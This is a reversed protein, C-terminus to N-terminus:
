LDRSPDAANRVTAFQGGATADPPDDNACGILSDMLGDQHLLTLCSDVAAPHYIRGRGRTLEAAVEERPLGPRYPRHAMMSEAVDAVAIVRAGILIADGGLGRPYGSGDLREHHQRVMEAVPWPFDIGKLIQYGVESHTRIIEMELESLRGPKTLIEIPVKIKGIDHLSAALAIGAIERESFGMARAMITALRAVNRQHGATYPDRFELTSALAQVVDNLSRQLRGDLQDREARLRLAAVGYSLDRAVEELLAMEEADFADVDAAVLGIAGFTGDRGTLPFAASSGCGREVWDDRWLAVEPNNTFDRNVHPTGTRIARSVPTTGRETAAWVLNLRELLDRHEGYSAVPRITRAADHEAFGIWALVYGGAEVLAKCMEDLLASENSAHVLASNAESLARLARNTRQLKREAIVRETIDILTGRYAQVTGATDRVPMMRDHIWYVSGDRAIGRYDQEFVETKGSKLDELASVAAPRDEPHIFEPFRRAGAMVEEVTYGFRTVNSSIYSRALGGYAQTQYLVVPSQEIILNAFQLDRETQRLDTIDTAYVAIAREGLYQVITSKILIDTAGGDPEITTMTFKSIGDAGAARARLRGAVREREHPAVFDTIPRDTFEESRRGSFAAFRQNAVIVTGDIRMLCIGIAGQEVLARYRDEVEHPLKAARKANATECFLWLRGRMCGDMSSVPISHQDIIRGDALLVEERSCGAPDQYLDDISRLYGPGDATKAAMADFVSRAETGALATELGWIRGFAPNVTTVIGDCDVALM